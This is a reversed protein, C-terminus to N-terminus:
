KQLASHSFTQPSFTGCLLEINCRNVRDQSFQENIMQKNNHFVTKLKNPWFNNETLSFFIDRVNREQM